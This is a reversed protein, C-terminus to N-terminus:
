NPLWWTVGSNPLNVGYPWDQCAYTGGKYWKAHGDCFGINEGGNHRGFTKPPLSENVGGIVRYFGTYANCCNGSGNQRDILMATQSPKDVEGLGRGNYIPGVADGAGWLGLNFNYAYGVGWWSDRDSPCRFIQTSKTYPQVACYWWLRGGPSNAGYAWDYPAPQPFTAAFPLTEDYDQTYSMIALTLQKVNSLCSSQRAKERAKAFVPFLIAALIAIIAIVVLLEILTFGRSKM